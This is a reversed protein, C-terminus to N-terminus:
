PFCIRVHPIRRFSPVVSSAPPRSCLGDHVTWVPSQHRSAQHRMARAVGLPSYTSGLAYDTVM